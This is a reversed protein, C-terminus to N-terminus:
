QASILTDKPGNDGDLVFDTGQQQRRTAAPMGQSTAVDGWEELGAYEFREKRYEYLM